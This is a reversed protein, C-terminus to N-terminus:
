GKKLMDFGGGGALLHGTVVSEKVPGNGRSHLFLRSGLDTAVEAHSMTIPALSARIEGVDIDHANNVSGVFVKNESLFGGDIGMEGFGSDGEEVGTDKPAALGLDFRRFDRRDDIAFPVPLM